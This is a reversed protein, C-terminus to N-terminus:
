FSGVKVASSELGAAVEVPGIGPKGQVMLAAVGAAHPAAASTGCFRWASAFFRAFFTTAGCDTAVVDPKSIVQQAIPSAATEGSVPGFFHKAPGRSSYEEPAASSSYPIAGLTIASASAAHGFITPGVVDGEKGIPYESKTVRGRLIFKLRPKALPDANPNCAGACRNIVLTVEQPTSTSNKWSLWEVPKKTMSVNDETKFPELRGGAVLFADLDAGVGNWPE